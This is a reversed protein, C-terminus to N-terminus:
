RGDTRPLSVLNAFARHAGGHLAALQRYWVLSSYAVTGRGWPAVLLGGDLPAEGADGVSLLPVFAPDWSSPFYLGREQVWGDWDRPEIRHPRNFVPHEPQLLTVEAAEDVVRDRGLALPLPTIAVNPEGTEPNDRDTNWEFLKHYGVVLHGGRAVWDHVQAIHARLDPRVLAARIDLVITDLGGFRGAALAASDLPVVAAGMRRLAAETADDYSRVLGVRLGPAVRVDPLQVAPRLAEIPEDSTDLAASVVALYRGPALDAPVDLPVAVSTPEAPLTVSETDIDDASFLDPDLDAHVQVARAAPDYPQVAVDLVTRLRLEIPAPDLDIALPPVVDFPLRGAHRIAGGRGIAVYLPAATGTRRDYQTQFLPVSPPTGAPVPVRLPGAAAAAALAGLDTAGARALALRYGSPARATTVGGPLVAADDVTLGPLPTARGADVLYGLTLPRPAPALGAGLDRAGAPLPPAGPAEQSLVFYTTDRRFRPAFVDFGQSVHQSAARVARDACLEAPGGAVPACPVSVPVAVDFADPREWFGARTFLRQPQWLDVGDEVLQDPRYSPDAALHFAAEASLGVAQHQGHQADPWATRTDHNTFLVDPKLRRVLRVLEATVARRGADAGLRGAGTDWFGRRRRSWEDFAEDAHKSFGFDYLNLFFVQTGLIRAAAETERTRTAGLREYLEPGAENQGGEGRTYIVSYAVADHHGRYTALTSGDEDDPHAALNMVVLPRDPLDVGPAAPPLASSAPPAAPTAAPRM